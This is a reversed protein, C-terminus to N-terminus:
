LVNFTFLIAKAMKIAEDKSIEVRLDGREFDLGEGKLQKFVIEDEFIEISIFDIDENVSGLFDEDKTFVKLSTNM